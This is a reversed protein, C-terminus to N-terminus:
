IKYKTLSPVENKNERRKEAKIAHTLLIVNKFIHPVDASKFLTSPWKLLKCSNVDQKSYKM